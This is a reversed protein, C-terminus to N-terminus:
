VTVRRGRITFHIVRRLAITRYGGHNMDWVIINGYEDTNYRPGAGTIGRKVGLRFSGTRVTGDRKIFKCGFIAAKRLMKKTNRTVFATHSKSM